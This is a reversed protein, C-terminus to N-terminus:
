FERVDLTVFVDSDQQDFVAAGVNHGLRSPIAVDLMVNPDPDVMAAAQM